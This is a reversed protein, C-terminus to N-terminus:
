TPLSSSSRVPKPRASSSCQNLQERWSPLPKPQASSSYQDVTSAMSSTNRQQSCGLRYVRHPYTSALERHASQSATSAGEGLRRQSSQIYSNSFEFEHFFCPFFIREVRFVGSFGCCGPSRSWRSVARSFGRGVRKGTSARKWLYRTQPFGGRVVRAILLFSSHQVCQCICLCVSLRVSSNFLPM